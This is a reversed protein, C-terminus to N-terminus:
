CSRESQTRRLLKRVIAILVVVLCGTHSHEADFRSNLTAFFRSWKGLAFPSSIFFKLHNKSAAPTTAIPLKAIESAGSIARYALILAM